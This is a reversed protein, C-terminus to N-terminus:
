FTYVAQMAFETLERALAAGRAPPTAAAPDSRRFFRSGSWDRRVELRLEVPKAPKFGLTATGERLRQGAAMGTAFGDHDDLYEGRLSVRWRPDFAYNAYLAVGDWTATATGPGAADRQQDWDVNAILTLAPTARWTLVGDVLSREADNPRDKGFYGQVALSLNTRATWAVGAEVTKPGYSTSSLNWGDDLGAILSLRDNLAYTARVGTHDLPEAFTFLLSRSFNTDITPNISEAGALTVFKGAIVTLAGHAYQLYAQRVDFAGDEGDEAAHLIRADEGAIVDFLVGLGQKPQYGLDLGAEDFQLADHRVDFQHANSPYGSSAYYSAAVYGSAALGILLPHSM